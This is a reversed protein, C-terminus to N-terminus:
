RRPDMDEWSVSGAEIFLDPPEPRPDDPVLRDPPVLLDMQPHRPNWCNPCVLLGNWEYKLESRYHKLGCRGCVSYHDDTRASNPILPM